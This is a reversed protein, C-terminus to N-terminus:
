GYVTSNLKRIALLVEKETLGIYYSTKVQFSGLLHATNMYDDDIIIYNNIMQENMKLWKIISNVKSIQADTKDWIQMGHKKLVSKLEIAENSLPNLSADFMQRWSSSLVLKAKTQNVIRKLLVVKKDDINRQLEPTLSKNQTIFKHNNLVGDIDLFIIDYKIM